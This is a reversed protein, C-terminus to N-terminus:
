ENWEVRDIDWCDRWSVVWTRQETQDWLEVLKNATDRIQIVGLGEYYGPEADKVPEGIQLNTTDVPKGQSNVFTQVRFRCAWSEGATITDITLEDTM